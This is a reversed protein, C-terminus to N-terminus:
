QAVRGGKDGAPEGVKQTEQEAGQRRSARGSAPQRDAPAQRQQGIHPHHRGRVVLGQLDPGEAPLAQCLQHSVCGQDVTCCSGKISKHGGATLVVGCPQPMSVARAQLHPPPHHMPAPLCSHHPDLSPAAIPSCSHPNTAMHSQFSHRALSHLHPHSRLQPAVAGVANCSRAALSMHGLLCYPNNCAKSM